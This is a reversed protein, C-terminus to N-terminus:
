GGADDLTFDEDPDPCIIQQYVLGFDDTRVVTHNEEIYVLKNNIASLNRIFDDIRFIDTRNIKFMETNPNIQNEEETGLVARVVEMNRNFSNHRVVRMLESYGEFKLIDGRDVKPRLGLNAGAIYEYEITTEGQDVTNGSETELYLSSSSLGPLTNPGTHLLPELLKERNYVCVLNLDADGSNIEGVFERASLSPTVGAYIDPTSLTGNYRANVLGTDTYFSDQVEAKSASLTRIAEFNSPTISGIERDAEFIYKSTRLVIANNFTANYDSTEFNGFLITPEFNVSIGDGADSNFQFAQGTIDPINIPSSVQFIFFPTNVNSYNTGANVTLEYAINDFTLKIVEVQQLINEIDTAELSTQGNVTLANHTISLAIIQGETDNIPDYLVHIQTSFNIVGSTHLTAFEALTM